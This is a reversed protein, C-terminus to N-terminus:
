FEIHPPQADALHQDTPPVFVELVIAESQSGSTFGHGEGPNIFFADGEGVVFTGRDTDFRGNGKMFLGFHTTGAKHLAIKADPMFRYLALTAFQDHSLIRRFVGPQFEDWATNSNKWIKM